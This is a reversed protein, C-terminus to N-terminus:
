QRLRHGLRQPVPEHCAVELKPGLKRLGADRLVQRDALCRDALRDVAQCHLAEHGDLRLAAGEDERKFRCFQGFEAIGPQDELGCCQGARDPGVRITQGGPQRGADTFHGPRPLRLIHREIQLEVQLKVLGQEVARAVSEEVVGVMGDGLFHRRQAVPEPAMRVGQRLGIPFMLLDARGNEGAVLRRGLANQARM